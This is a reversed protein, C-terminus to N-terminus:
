IKGELAPDPEWLSLPVDRGLIELIVGRYTRWQFERSVQKLFVVSSIEGINQQHVSLVLVEPIGHFELYHVEGACNIAASRLRSMRSAAENDSHSWGQLTLQYLRQRRTFEADTYSELNRYVATRLYSTFSRVAAEILQKKSYKQTM